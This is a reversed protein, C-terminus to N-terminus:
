QQAAEYASGPVGIVVPCLRGKGEHLSHEPYVRLGDISPLSISLKNGIVEEWIGNLGEGKGRAFLM